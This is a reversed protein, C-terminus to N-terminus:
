LSLSDLECLFYTLALLDACGGPSLNRETFETDMERVEDLDVNRSALVSRAYEKAFVVGVDGGRKYLCTDYVNAILHLLTIVGADNKNKGAGLASNYVPIAINSLTPFGEMAEGRIGKVGRDIYAREGATKGNFGLLDAELFTHCIRGSESLLADIKPLRGTLGTLSGLAGIIIGYTFIAGKHTNKGGTAQYMKSEADLGLRRLTPFLSASDSNVGAKFCDEFYPELASASLEFDAVSMDCHSGSNERDVLGPKPTTYVESLLSSKALAGVRRADADLFYDRMMGDTVFVLEELPHLRGASCARGAAGCVICCRQEGRSLHTGDSAIVDIDFLRGIPHEDEIKTFLEKLKLADAEVSLILVPGCKDYKKYESLIKVGSIEGYIIGVGLDFARIILESTKKPGPINMTFSILPANHAALMERQISARRERSLLLEDLSVQM